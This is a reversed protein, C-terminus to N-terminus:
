QVAPQEARARGTLWNVRILTGNGPPTAVLDPPRSLDYYAIESAGVKNKPTIFKQNYFVSGRQLWITAGPSNAATALRNLGVGPDRYVEGTADFALYPLLYTNTGLETPFRFPAYDFSFVPTVQYFTNTFYAVSNTAFKVPNIFYGGPLFRWETLYRWTSQGPQDGM